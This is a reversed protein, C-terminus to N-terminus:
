FPLEENDVDIIRKSPEQQRILLAFDNYRNFNIIIERGYNKALERYPRNALIDLLIQYAVNDKYNVVGSFYDRANTHVASDDYSYKDIDSNSHTLYEFMSIRDSMVEGLTNQHCGAILDLNKQIFHLSVNQKFVFLCHFHPVCGDHDHLIYAYKSVVDKELFNIIVDLSHYVICSWSYARNTVKM